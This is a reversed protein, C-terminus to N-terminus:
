CRRGSWSTTSCRPKPRSRRFYKTFSSETPPIPIQAIVEGGQAKIAPASIDRHDHGFAYDPFIM